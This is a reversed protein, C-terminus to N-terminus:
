EKIRYVKIVSDVKYMGSIWADRELLYVLGDPGVHQGHIIGGSWRSFQVDNFNNPDYTYLWCEKADNIAFAESQHTYALNGVGLLAWYCLGRPHWLGGGYVMDSCWRGEGNRPNLGIWEDEHVFVNNVYKGVRYNPPRKERENWNMTGHTAKSMLVQSNSTALTPGSRSGQGSEYGGCGILWESHWGKVFGGGYGPMPLITPITTIEGTALNKGKLSLNIPATDYHVKPSVWLVGDKFDLGMPNGRGWFNSHKRAVWRQPYQAVNSGLGMPGLNFENIQYDASGVFAKGTAFDIALGSRGFPETLRWGGLLEFDEVRLRLKPLVASEVAAVRVALANAEVLMSEYTDPVNVELANVRQQLAIAETILAAYSV